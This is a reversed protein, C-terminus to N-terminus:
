AAGHLYSVVDGDWLAGYLVTEFTPGFRATRILGRRFTLRSYISAPRCLREARAADDACRGSALASRSGARRRRDLAARRSIGRASPHSAPGSALEELADEIEIRADSAHKVRRKRDKQLCRRVLHQASRPTDRPLLALDPEAELVRALTETATTSADFPSVGTLMEYLVVGFAWIDTQPGAAERARAGPEHVPATGMVAGIETMYRCRPRARRVPQSTPKKALGFDLVKVRGDPTIMINAPKLDRHVVGREHAAELAAAIQQAIELARQVPMRGRILRDALTDGEVLELVLFRGDGHEELGYIAAVNPHSVAALSTAERVLRAIRDPDRALAPPLAKIAVERRLKTDRAKWVEGMGGKGVASLIEYHGLRTGPQM